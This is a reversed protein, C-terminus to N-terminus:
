VRPTHATPHFLRLPKRKIRAHHHGYSAGYCAHFAKTSRWWLRRQCCCCFCFIIYNCLVVDYVCVRPSKDWGMSRGFFISIELGFEDNKDRCMSSYYYYYTLFCFCFFFFLISLQLKHQCASAPLIIKFFINLLKLKIPIQYFTSMQCYALLYYRNFYGHSM